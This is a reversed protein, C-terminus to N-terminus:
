EVPATLAPRGSSLQRQVSRRVQWRKGAHTHRQEIQGLLIGAQSFRNPLTEILHQGALSEDEPRVHFFEFAGHGPEGAGGVGDANGRSGIREEGHEHSQADPRAIRDDGRGVTKKRGRATHGTQARPRQEDVDVRGGVVERRFAQRLEQAILAFSPVSPRHMAAAATDDAGDHGHMQEAQAALHIRDFAADPFMSQDDNFVGSLRDPRLAQKASLDRLGSGHACATAETKIWRLVESGRSVGSENGTALFIQGFPNTNKAAVTCSEFLENGEDLDFGAVIM